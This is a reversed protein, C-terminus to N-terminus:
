QWRCFNDSFNWGAIYEKAPCKKYFIDDWVDLELIRSWHCHSKGFRNGAEAVALV